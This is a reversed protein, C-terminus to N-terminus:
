LSLSLVCLCGLILPRCGLRASRQATAASHQVTSRQTGTCQRTVNLMPLEIVERIKEIQEKSGGVDAYSVDPKEEVTMMSVSPDIKPPLPLHIQYKGGRDVGVRMGEEIDTPSVRDALGVVYKAIQKVNILYKADETGPSIIKTCRAVQLPQESGMLQKDAVLDWMSPQSLGTDSEKIGKLLNVEKTLRAIDDETNRISATYPGSGYSKILAIDEEDLPIVDKKKKADDPLLTSESPAPGVDKKKEEEPPDEKGDDRKGSPVTIKVANEEKHSSMAHSLPLHAFLPLLLCVFISLLPSALPARRCVHIQLSCCVAALLLWPSSCAGSCLADHARRHLSRDFRRQEAAIAGRQPRSRVACASSLSCSSRHARLQARATVLLLSGVRDAVCLSLPKQRPM